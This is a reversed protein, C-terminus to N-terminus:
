KGGRLNAPVSEKMKKPPDLNLENMIKVFEPLTKDFGLRPNEKKELGITSSKQGKYDHAPYVLTDDPLTFLKERVSKFLAEASGDQFDTRGCGRIMLADGTFVKGHFYFSCCTNTHGPTTIVKIEYGGLPLIMSDRLTVDASEVKANESVCLKAGSRKRLSAAGSVHDAHIHTELLYELNLGLGSILEWDREITEFVSDILAASRSIPDAILYTYTSSEPEFLQYFLPEPKM